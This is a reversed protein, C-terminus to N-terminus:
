ATTALPRRVYIPEVRESTFASEVVAPTIRIAALTPDTPASYGIPQLIKEMISRLARAGTPRKKAERAVMRSAEDEFQLDINDLAFLARFQKMISHKPKTLVELMQDETLDITTTLVPLRGLLEPIIGFELVDEETVQLYVSTKDKPDYRKRETGAFGLSSGKNVRRDVDEEIGAFSGAAIFLINKTNMTDSSSIGAAIVKAGMGRPVSVLSGELLKLLAQQVGEGTIDRYGSANAGTKRALKDFEDIFIIGWEAREIDQDSAVILGQLMSEVDDGVYGAQTLKTADAVYFPLNLLRAIARAIHTKGSGTPGLLLINSKEIEVPEPKGDVEVCIPKGSLLVQRRKYHNYVALAIDIKAKEQGIVYEDLYTVIESPKKLPEEKNTAVERRGRQALVSQFTDMCMTCIAPGGPEERKATIIHKVENAAKGCFSCRQLRGDAM